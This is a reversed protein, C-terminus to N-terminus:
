QEITVQDEMHKQWVYDFEEQKKELEIQSQAVNDVLQESENQMTSILKVKEVYQGKMVDLKILNEQNKNREILLAKLLVNIKNNRNLKKFNPELKNFMMDATEDFNKLHPTAPGGMSAIDFQYSMDTVFSNDKSQPNALEPSACENDQRFIVFEGDKDVLEEEHVSQDLDEDPVKLPNKRITLEFDSEATNIPALNNIPSTKVEKKCEVQSITDEDFEMELGDDDLLLQIENLEEDPIDLQPIYDM